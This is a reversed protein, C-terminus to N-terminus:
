DHNMEEGPAGILEIAVWQGAVGARARFLTRDQIVLEVPDQAARDLAIVDGVRLSSLEDLTFTARGLVARLEIPMDGLRSQLAAATPVGAPQTEAEGLLLRATLPALCVSIEGIVPGCFLDSDFRLWVTDDGGPMAEEERPAPLMRVSRGDWADAIGVFWRQLLDQLLTSEAPTLARDDRLEFPAGFIRETIAAAFIRPIAVILHGAAAGDITAWFLDENISSPLSATIQQYRPPRATCNTRLLGSLDQAASEVWQRFADLLHAIRQPDFQDATPFLAPAIPKASQEPVAFPQQLASREEATLLQTM